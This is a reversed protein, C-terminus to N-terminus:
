HCAHMKYWGQMWNLTLIHLLSFDYGTSVNPEGMLINLSPVRWWVGIPAPRHCFSRTVSVPFLEDTAPGPKPSTELPSPRSLLVMLPVTEILM